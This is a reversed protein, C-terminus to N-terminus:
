PHMAFEKAGMDPASGDYAREPIQVVEAYKATGTDLAPSGESL